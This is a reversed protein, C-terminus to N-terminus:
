AHGARHAAGVFRRVLQHARVHATRDNWQLGNRRYVTPSFGLKFRHLGHLPHDPAAAGAPAGGLNYATVGRARLASMTRWHLWVSASQAYGDPTSGGSLYFARHATYGILAAALLADGQYASFV